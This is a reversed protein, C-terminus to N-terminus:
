DCNEKANHEINSGFVMEYVYPDYYRMINVAFEKPDMELAKSWDSLREAPVRGRGAEIQSIFTYYEVKVRRALERQSLGLETRRARLWAGAQKRLELARNSDQTKHSVESAIV